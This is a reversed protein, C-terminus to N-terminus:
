AFYFVFDKNNEFLNKLACTVTFLFFVFNKNKLCKLWCVFLPAADTYQFNQSMPWLGSALLLLVIPCILIKFEASRVSTQLEM